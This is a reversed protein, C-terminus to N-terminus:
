PFSRGPPGPGAKCPAPLRPLAVATGRGLPLLAATRVARRDRVHAPDGSHVWMRKEATRFGWISQLCLIQQFNAALDNPWFSQGTSVKIKGVSHKDTIKLQHHNPSTQLSKHNNGSHPLPAAGCGMTGLVAGVSLSGAGAGMDATSLPLPGANM